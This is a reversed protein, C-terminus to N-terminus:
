VRRASGNAELALAHELLHGVPSLASLLARGLGHRLELLEPTNYTLWTQGGDGEWVLAKLPLDIAATPSAVMLPTGVAANGFILLVTPRMTLGAARAAAAHDIRAFLTLGAQALAQELSAVCAAVPGPCRRSRLSTAVETRDAPM